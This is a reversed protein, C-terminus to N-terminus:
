IMSSRERSQRHISFILFGHIPAFLTFHFTTKLNYIGVTHAPVVVFIDLYERPISGCGRALLERKKERERERERERKQRPTVCFISTGGEVIQDRRHSLMTLGATLARTLARGPRSAQRLSPTGTVRRGARGAEVESEKGGIRRSKKRKGEKKKGDSDLYKYRALPIRV